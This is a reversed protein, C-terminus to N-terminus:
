SKRHLTPRADDVVIVEFSDFEQDLANDIALAITAEGNYVPIIVSVRPAMTEPVM